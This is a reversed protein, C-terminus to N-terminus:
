IKSGLRPEVLDMKGLYINKLGPVDDQYKNVFKDLFVEERPILFTSLCLGKKVLEKTLLIKVVTCRPIIRGELNFFLVVPCRAVLAAQWGMKNVLFDMTEMIKEESLNMCLPHARFALLIEDNSLGWRGYVEKKRKFTSERMFCLVQVAHAFNSRQPNFGMEIAKNVGEKFKRSEQLLTGPSRYMMFSTVSQPVGAERLTAINPALIKEVNFLLVRPSRKLMKIVNQDLFLVSKLFNYCPILQNELSRSLLAQCYTACIVRPIDTSSLGISRFFELKPLITKQPNYFLINPDMDVLKSIQTNTFGYNRLLTKVLETNQVRKSSLTDIKPACDISRNNSDELVFSKSSFLKKIPPTNSAILLHINWSGSVFSHIPRLNKSFFFSLM